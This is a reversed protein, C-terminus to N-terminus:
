AVRQARGSKINSLMAVLLLQGAMMAESQSAWWGIVGCGMTDDIYPTFNVGVFNPQNADNAPNVPASKVGASVRKAYTEAVMPTINVGPFKGAVKGKRYKSLVRLRKDARKSAVPYHEWEWVPARRSRVPCESWQLWAIRWCRARSKDDTKIAFHADKALEILGCVLLQEFGRLAPRKDSLGLRDRADEASLYISGNNNGDHLSVLEQLLSRAALDLSAYAASELVRHPLATFRGARETRGTANPRKPRQKTRSM